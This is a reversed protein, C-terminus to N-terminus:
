NGGGPKVDESSECKSYKPLSYVKEIVGSITTGVLTGVIPVGMIIGVTEFTVALGTYLLCKREPKQM